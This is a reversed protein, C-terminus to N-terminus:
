HRGVLSTILRNVSEKFFLGVFQPIAPHIWHTELVKVEEELEEINEAVNDLIKIAVDKGTEL